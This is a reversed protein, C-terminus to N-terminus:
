QDQSPDRPEELQMGVLQGTPLYAAQIAAILSVGHRLHYCTECGPCQGDHSAAADRIIGILHRAIESPDPLRRDFQQRYHEAIEPDPQM